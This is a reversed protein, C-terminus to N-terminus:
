IKKNGTFLDFASIWGDVGIIPNKNADKLSEKLSATDSTRLYFEHLPLKITGILCDSSSSNSSKKWAEIIMFNNRMNEVISPKILFALNITWNFSSQNEFKVKEKNWFLRCILYISTLDNLNSANFGRGENISLFMQIPISLEEIVNNIPKIIELPREAVQIKPQQRFKCDESNRLRALNIAFEKLDSSLELSVHLTGIRKRDNSDCLEDKVALKKLLKFNKSKLVNRLSLRSSGILFPSGNQNGVPPRFFIKFQVYSRWWSELLRTNFLVSYDANHEFVVIDDSVSNAGNEEPKKMRKSIVRMVQTAM